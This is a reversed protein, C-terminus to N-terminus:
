IKILGIHKFLSQVGVGKKQTKRDIFKGTSPWFDVYGEVLLHYESLKEYEIDFKLLELLANNYSIIKKAKNLENMAKYIEGMDGM